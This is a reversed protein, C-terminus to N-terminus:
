ENKVILTITKAESYRVRGHHDGKIPQLFRRETYLFDVKVGLWSQWQKDSVTEKLVWFCVDRLVSAPLNQGKNLAIIAHASPWDKAHVWIYWPKSQRLIKLNDTGSKGIYARINDVFERTRGKAGELPSKEVRALIPAKAMGNEIQDLEIKLKEIRESLNSLKIKNKKAQLFANEINQIVTKKFDFMHAYKQPVDETREVNLWDAFEQWMDKSLEFQNQLLKQLGSKKKQVTLEHIVNAAAIAPTSVTDLFQGRWDKYLEDISRKEPITKQNTLPSLEQPKNLCISLEDAVVKINKGHPFLHAELKLEKHNNSFVFEILRGYNNNRFISKLSLGLGHAKFFLVIPKIQKKFRPIQERTIIFFPVRSRVDIILSCAGLTEHRLSLVLIDQDLIIGEVVSEKYKQAELVLDDFEAFSVMKMCQLTYSQQFWRPM